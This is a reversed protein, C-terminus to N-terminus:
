SFILNLPGDCRIFNRSAAFKQSCVIIFDIKHLVHLFYYIKTTTIIQPNHLYFLSMSDNPNSRIQTENHCIQKPYISMKNLRNLDSKECSRNVEKVNEQKM